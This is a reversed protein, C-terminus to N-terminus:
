LLIKGGLIENTRALIGFLELRILLDKFKLEENM